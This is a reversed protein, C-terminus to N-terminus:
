DAEPAPEDRQAVDEPSPWDGTRVWRLVRRIDNGILFLSPVVLLTLLTAFMLGFAISVAMPKIFQAQFSREFLLPTIGAVTTMTTLIIPRFRIRAGQEAAAYVAAGARVRRNVQDLLVLSDNVVIGALAVMGFMSLLTVSFGLIWHGAVAGVLGFPIAVMIIIPQVYSKFLAALITYIGLLALPFWVLLADLTESLQRRQGRLDVRLPPFDRALEAFFGGPAPPAEERGLLKRLLKVPAPTQGADEGTLKNLISEANAVDEDVDATVTIVSRRGARRLTTYGRKLVVDAVEAFPVEAGAATRVRMNEVDTLSRRQSVPYRVMVKIEDSGRQIKLSEHGYFADRLQSALMQLRIGLSDAGSKLRIKMETKGPLADDRIDSVGAFEALRAKLRKAAPKVSDTDEGLLRIELAAGGPGGHFSGFDQSLADPIPGTNNRWAQGLRESSLTRPRNEAPSLEVIVECLHAGSGGPARRGAHQGLLSYVRRVVSRADEGKFQENLRLAAEAVQRAVQATREFPTGTQLTIRSRLTDSEVKPFGVFPVYGAKSAGLTAMLLGVVTALTVYRYRTALRYARTFPGDIFWRVGGDLRARVAEALRTPRAARERCRRRSRMTHALHPPLILVCEILSFSLALIVVLPLIEIFRGMVGPLFMLPVFAVCTTTVAAVVPMLVGHTGNVAALRPLEGGEVHRHVNEGVVIADDVILGLAMILAFMSMMNLTQGTLHMVLIAGLVSVPIGMAVWFSLRAGLFLWLIVFVLGLGWAGNRVLMDLRDRIVKSSDSWVDLMIGDPMQGRKRNVYSRVAEAIRISDEDRAKYVSVLAAPKGNFQGGVDIDEFGERVTALDALRVVTGDPRSLVVINKYEEATDKQGVVRISMEGGRTRVKGAPLDFSSQRIAQAVRGLTLKHKRLAQESVEVTIEFRRVGSVSVQSVEPLDNIEDRVEEALEKLTREPAQGAVAVHIVHRRLTVEVTVPDEADEPFDVKDVESKVDDLVKRVDAGTQMELTVLGVGELSQSYIEKVGEMGTLRDEIKLCISQEIDDPSSGPYAVTISVVDVSFEPFLERPILWGAVLGGGLILIMLMNGAVPNSVMRRIVSM